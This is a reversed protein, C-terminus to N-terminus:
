EAVATNDASIPDVVETTCAPMRRPAAQAARPSRTGARLANNASTTAASAYPRAYPNSRVISLRPAMTPGNSASPSTDSTLM